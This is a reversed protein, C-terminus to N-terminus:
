IILVGQVPTLVVGTKESYHNEALLLIGTEEDLPYLAHQEGLKQMEWDYLAVSYAQLKKLIHIKEKTVTGIPQRQYQDTLNKAEEWLVVVTKTNQEIVSFNRSASHFAQPIYRAFSKGTLSAYSNRGKENESLLDYIWTGEKTPCDMQSGKGAFYLRYFEAMVAEDLLDEGNNKRQLMGRTIERGFKIDQLRDLNEDKLPIVYVNKPSSSQGHRNCRGAAQAVSDLGAMSRVVCSFSIDVGAEILQTAVCIIKEGAALSNRLRKLTSKRHSPCMSTSLHLAEFGAAKDKLIQYIELAMKKTNVIVLCDGNEKAKEFIFDSASQCDMEEKAVVQVRRIGRFAESCDLLRADPHLRLNARPTDELTPQTASCLLVTAGCLTSLFTVVENFCHIMKPPMAQIEDFIIVSDAMASFKRLKGSKDSMVSEMFQVMTTVIVPSDWRASSMARIQAACEDEPEMLDSHHEFIM